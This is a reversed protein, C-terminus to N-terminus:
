RERIAFARLDAIWDGTLPPLPLEGVVADAMLEFLESKKEFYRYLSTTGAGLENAVRRMSVADVGEEDAIRVAVSTIEDRTYAPKPGRTAREPRAWITTAPAADVAESGGAGPSDIPPLKRSRDTSPM